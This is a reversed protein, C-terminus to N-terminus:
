SVIAAINGLGAEKKATVAIAVMAKAIVVFKAAVSAAVAMSM